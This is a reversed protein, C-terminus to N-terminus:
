RRILRHLCYCARLIQLCESVWGRDETETGAMNAGAVKGQQIASPTIANVGPQGSFFDLGEAVDGAAYVDPINTRMKRDVLIGTNVKVGSGDLFSTRPKVGTSTILLETHLLSGDSLAIEVGDKNRKVEEIGSGAYIQAGQQRFIDEILAGADEDFYRRAIRSRVVIKVKYGMEVLATALELAVLGGGYITVEKKGRLQQALRKYDAITHFGLFGVEALGKIPPRAPESGTAILLSDYTEQRGDKYVVEKTEPLLRIVEKGKGLSCKIQQLYSEDALWMDEEKIRGSILYPLAAPSYPLHDEATVLKIEDASTLSRIKKLASMAATGCGIILHKRM